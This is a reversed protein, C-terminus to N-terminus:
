HVSLNKQLYYGTIGVKLSLSSFFILFMQSMSLLATTVSDRDKDNPLRM